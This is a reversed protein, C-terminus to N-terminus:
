RFVEVAFYESVLLAPQHGLWIRYARFVSESTSRENGADLPLTVYGIELLERYTELECERILEGIGLAGSLLSERLRPPLLDIRIVSFAEAYITGSSAGVLRVARTLVEVGAGLNLWSIEAETREIVQTVGEVNVPEWFYSELCKTVTGDTVLLTRLIPPLAAMMLTGNGGDRLSWDHAFGKTKFIAAIDSDGEKAYFRELM